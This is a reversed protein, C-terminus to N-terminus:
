WFHLAYLVNGIVSHSGEPADLYVPDFKKAKSAYEDESCPLPFTQGQKVLPDSYGPKLNCFLECQWAAWFLRIKQERDFWDKCQDSENVRHLGLVQVARGAISSYMNTPQLEGFTFWFMTLLHATQAM